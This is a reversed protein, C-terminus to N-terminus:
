FAHAGRHEGGVGGGGGVGRLWTRLLLVRSSLQLEPPADRWLPENIVVHAGGCIIDSVHVVLGAVWPEPRQGCAAILCMNQSTKGPTSATILVMCGSRLSLSEKNKGSHFCLAVNDKSWCCANLLYSIFLCSLLNGGRCLAEHPKPNAGARHSKSEDSQAAQSRGRESEKKQQQESIWFHWGHKDATTVSDAIGWDDCVCVHVCQSLPSPTSSVSEWHWTVVHILVESWM